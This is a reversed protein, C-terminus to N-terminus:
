VIAFVESVKGKHCEKGISIWDKIISCHGGFSRVQRLSVQYNGEYRGPFRDLM